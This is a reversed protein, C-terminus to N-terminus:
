AWNLFSSSVKIPSIICSKPIHLNSCNPLFNSVRIQFLFVQCSLKLIQKWYLQCYSWSCLISPTLIKLPWTRMQTSTMKTLKPYLNKFCDLIEFSKNGLISINYQLDTFANAHFIGMKPSIVAPKNTLPRGNGHM